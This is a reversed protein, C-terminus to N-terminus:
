AGRWRTPSSHRLRSILMNDHAISELAAGLAANAATVSLGLATLAAITSHPVTGWVGIAVVILPDFTWSHPDSAGPVLRAISACPNRLLWPDYKAHKRSIAASLNADDAVTFEIPVVIRRDHDLCYLDPRLPSSADDDDDAPPSTASADDDPNSGAGNDPPTLMALSRERIWTARSLLRAAASKLHPLIATIAHDHRLRRQNLYRNCASYTHQATELVHCHPCQRHVNADTQPQRHANVPLLGLRASAFLRFVDPPFLTPQTIWKNTVATASTRVRGHRLKSKYHASMFSAMAANATATARSLVAEKSTPKGNYLLLAPRRDEYFVTSIGHLSFCRAVLSVARKACDSSPQEAADRIEATPARTRPRDPKGSKWVPIQWGALRALAWAAHVVRPCTATAAALWGELAPLYFAPGLRSHHRGGHRLFFREVFLPMAFGGASIPLALLEPATGSDGTLEIPDTTPVALVVRVVLRCLHVQTRRAQDLTPAWMGRAHHRWASGIICQVAAMRIGPPVPERAIHEADTHLKTSIADYIASDDRMDTQFFYGLAKVTRATSADTISTGAANTYPGPVACGAHMATVWSKTYEVVQCVSELAHPIASGALFLANRQATFHPDIDVHDGTVVMDDDAYVMAPMPHLGVPTPVLASYRYHTTPGHARAAARLMGEAYENARDCGGKTGQPAGGDVSIRPGLKPTNPLRVRASASRMCERHFRLLPSDAPGTPQYFLRLQLLQVGFQFRDFCKSQDNSALGISQGSRFADYIAARWVFCADVCGDVDRQYALNLPDLVRGDAAHALAASEIGFLLRMRPEYCRIGRMHAPIAADPRKPLSSVCSMHDGIPITEPSNLAAHLLDASRDHTIPPQAHIYKSPLGAPGAGSDARVALLARLYVRPNITYDPQIDHWRNYLGPPRQRGDRCEPTCRDTPCSCFTLMGHAHWWGGTHRDALAAALFSDYDTFTGRTVHRVADHETFVSGHFLAEYHAHLPVARLSPSTTCTKGRMEAHAASRDDFYMRTLKHARDDVREADAHATARLRISIWGPRLAQVYNAWDSWAEATAELSPKPDCDTDSPGLQAPPLPITLAPCQSGARRRRLISSTGDIARRVATVDRRILIAPPVGRIASACLRLITDLDRLRAATIIATDIDAAADRPDAADRIDASADTQAAAWAPRLDRVSRAWARWASPSASAPSTHDDSPGLQAPPPPIAHEPVTSEAFAQRAKNPQAARM